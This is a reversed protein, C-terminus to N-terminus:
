NANIAAIRQRSTAIYTSGVHIENAASTQEGSPVTVEIRHRVFAELRSHTNPTETGVRPSTVAFEDIARM